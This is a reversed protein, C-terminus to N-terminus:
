ASKKSSEKSKESINDFSKDTLKDIIKILTENQHILNNIQKEKEKCLICNYTSVSENLIDSENPDIGYKKTMSGKGTILWELNIDTYTSYIKEIVDSGISASNKIQKGTYGNAADISKDFSNLSMGKHEIYLKLREIPKM